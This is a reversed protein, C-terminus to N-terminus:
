TEYLDMESVVPQPAISVKAKPTMPTEEAGSEDGSEGKILQSDILEHEIDDSM